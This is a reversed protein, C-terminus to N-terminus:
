RDTGPARLARRRRHHDDRDARPHGLVPEQGVRERHGPQAPDRVGAPLRPDLRRRPGRGPTGHLRRRHVQLRGQQHGLLRGSRRGTGPHGHRGDAHYRDRRPRARGRRRLHGRQGHLRPLGDEAQRLADPPPDPGPRGRPLPDDVNGTALKSLDAYLRGSISINDAAFNLKGIILLKGDTSIKLIVQGNFVQQSTFITYIKASGTIIMPSTFAAFFGDRDPNDSISKAQRAVQAQLSTLWNAANVNSPLAFDPGRLAFPDDISPLTKFFEVGAAFDNIALGIHPVIVLGGPVEVNIFVQLPGLESLGLRITFGAMGAISFGGEIGLYFVRKFVPTTTDFAGIIGYSSDLKLIGGLLGADLEGGFMKGKVQVAISDLGIIPFEGRALLAPAIKIGQISGSFTLGALGKIETVSASLTLVFDEPHNEVDAWQIGIADIRVPLFSPWKFSDGTASGIGLAVGFGTKAKFGGDGIIAFNRGEGTLSSGPRGHCTCGRLHVLGDGAVHRGRRHRAPLRRGDPHRLHRAPDRPHRRRAPVRRGQRRHLDAHRPVGRRGPQRRRTPRRGHRPRQPDRRVTPGPLAPGRRDRHLDRRHLQRVPRGRLHGHLRLRRDPHRRARPHRRLHDQRRHGHHDGRQGPRRAPRQGAAPPRLRARRHRSQLRQRPDGPRAPHRGRADRRRGRDREARRLPRVPAAQRHYGLRPFTIDATNIVILRQDDAGNPDYGVVIGTASLTAVNPVVAELSAVRLGWKGTPEVRFQGSLLGLVDVALDFTGVVGILDVTVGSSQQTASPGTGTTTANGGFALSARDVGVAITLVVMGDAFGFDALGISPGQLTLPGLAIPGGTTASGPASADITFTQTQTGNSAIGGAATGSTIRGAEFTLTVLGPLFLGTTNSPTSDKLFYRYTVTTATDARGSILLPAGVIVPRITSGSGTTALDGFTGSIFFPASGANEISSKNIPEPAVGTAPPLSTYTIDIYRQANIQAATITGGNSPNAITAAPGPKKPKGTVPDTGPTFVVFTEDEGMVMAGSTDSFGGNLFRVTVLGDTLVGTYTYRYTTGSVLTPVGSVTIGALATGGSFLQIEADPDTITEPRLGVGNPDNFVVTITGGLSSPNVVANKLPSVLDATPFLTATTGAAVTDGAKPFLKFDTVKFNVLRFGTVQSISFAGYGSLLAVNKGSIGILLSANALVVDLSGDPSRTLGLTGTLEFIGPVKISVSTATFRYTNGSVTTGGVTRDTATTNATFTVAGSVSLGDLGVLALTGTVRLAFGLGPVRLYAITAGTVLVGVADPNLSGDALKSPGKGIFIELGSGTFSDGTIVINGARIEFADGLDFALDQIIFAATPTGPLDIAITGDGVVVTQKVAVGTTNFGIGLSAGGVGGLNIRGTIVGAVGGTTTTVAPTVPSVGAPVTVAGPPFIILAGSGSTLGNGGDADGSIGQGTAVSANAFAIKTVQAGTPGVREFAVDAHITVGGAATNAPDSLIVVDIGTAAIRLYPGKPLTLTRVNGLVQARNGVADWTVTFSGAAAVVAVGQGTLAELASEVGSAAVNWALPATIEDADIRGNANKDYALTFTGATATVTITQVERVSATGQTTTGTDVGAFQVIEAVAVGLNNVQLKLSATITVPLGVLAVTGEVEGAIGAATLLIAGSGNTLRLGMGDPKGPRVTPDGLFLSVDTFAVRM